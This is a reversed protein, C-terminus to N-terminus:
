VCIVMALISQSGDVRELILSKSRLRGNGGHRPQGKSAATDGRASCVQPASGQCIRVWILGSLTAVECATPWLTAPGCRGAGLSVWNESWFPSLCGREWERRPWDLAQSGLAQSRARAWWLPLVHGLGLPLSLHKLFVDRSPWKTRRRKGLPAPTTGGGESVYLGACARNVPQGEAQPQTPLLLLKHRLFVETQSQTCLSLLDRQFFSRGVRTCMLWPKRRLFFLRGM